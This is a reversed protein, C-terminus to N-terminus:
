AWDGVITLKDSSLKSLAAGSCAYVSADAGTGLGGDAGNCTCVMCFSVACVCLLATLSCQRREAGRAFVSGNNDAGYLGYRRVRQQVRKYCCYSMTTVTSYQHIYLIYQIHKVVLGSRRPRYLKILLVKSPKYVGPSVHAVGMSHCVRIDRCVGVGCLVRASCFGM